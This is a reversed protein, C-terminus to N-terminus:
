QREGRAPKFKFSHIPLGAVDFLERFDAVAEMGVSVDASKTETFLGYVRAPEGETRQPMDVVGIPMPTDFAEPLNHAVVYSQVEGREQLRVTEWESPTAKCRRCIEREEPFSVYGCQQCEFARLRENQDRRRWYRPSHM